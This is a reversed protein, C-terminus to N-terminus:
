SRYYECLRRKHGQIHCDECRLRHDFRCTSQRHNFEGCNYCGLSKNNNTNNNIRNNHTFKTYSRQSTLTYPAHRDGPIQTYTHRNHPAHRDRDLIHTYTHRNHTYKEQLLNKHHTYPAPKRNYITSQQHPAHPLTNDAYEYQPNTYYGPIITVPSSNLMNSPQLALFKNYFNPHRLTSQLHANSEQTTHTYSSTINPHPTQHSSM